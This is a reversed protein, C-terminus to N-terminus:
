GVWGWVLCVTLHNNSLDLHEMSPSAFTEPVAVILHNNALDLFSAGGLAGLLHGNIGADRAQFKRLKTLSRLDAPLDWEELRTNNNISIFMAQTLNSFFTRPMSTFLNGDLYLRNLRPLALVPLPGSLENFRLDLEIPWSLAADGETSPVWGGLGQASANIGVVRGNGDCNIGPWNKYCPDGYWNLARDAGTAAALRRMYTADAEDTPVRIKVRGHVGAPVGEGRIVGAPALFREDGKVGASFLFVLVVVTAM